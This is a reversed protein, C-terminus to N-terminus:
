HLHIPLSKFDLDRGEQVDSLDFLPVVQSYIISLLTNFYNDSSSSSSHTGVVLDLQPIVAIFQGGLGIALIRRGAAVM